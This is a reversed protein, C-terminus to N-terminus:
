NEKDDVDVSVFTKKNQAIADRLASGARAFMRNPDPENKNFLAIGAHVEFRLMRNDLQFPEELAAIVRSAVKEADVTEKIGYLMLSFVDGEQLSVSDASRTRRVIRNGIEITMRDKPSFTHTQADESNQPRVSFLILPFEHEAKRGAYRANFALRELFADRDLLSSGFTPLVKTDRNLIRLALGMLQRVDVPKLLIFDAEDVLDEARRAYGSIVIVPVQKLRDDARFSKLLGPGAFENGLRLDLLILSPTEGASRSLADIPTGVLEPRFGILGLSHCYLDAVDPDDEIILALPHKM